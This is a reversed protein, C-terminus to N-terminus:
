IKVHFKIFEVNMNSCNLCHFDLVDKLINVQLLNVNEMLAAISAYLLINQIYMIFVIPYIRNSCECGVNM